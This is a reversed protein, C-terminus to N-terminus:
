SIVEVQGANQPIRYGDMKRVELRFEGSNLYDFFPRYRPDDLLDPFLVMEYPEEFLPIFDLGAEFACAAIGLGADAEGDKVAQAVGAHSHIVKNYGVIQEPHIAIDALRMDLWQRVGSGPERNVFRVGPRLLDTVERLGLPNGTKMMLGEERRYIQILAMPQGPFLHRVFSRNYEQSGADILHCTTLQCLGQRLAVLGDLSSLPVPLLSFPVPKQEFYNALHSVAFDLSGIVIGLRDPPIEPVLALNALFSRETAQYYKEPGGQVPRIESLEVLGAHELLKLHHRIHAPTEKFHEGLQSLTAQGAMLRRLIARRQPHM